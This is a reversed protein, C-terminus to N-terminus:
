IYFTTYIKKRVKMVQSAKVPGYGNTVQFEGQMMGAITMVFVSPDDDGWATVGGSDATVMEETRVQLYLGNSAKIRVRNPEDPKREMVFTEWAGPTNLVAVVVNNGNGSTRIFQKNFTRLNFTSENIRWLQMHM